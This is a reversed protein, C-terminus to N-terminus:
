DRRASLRRHNRSTRRAHFQTTGDHVSGVEDSASVIQEGLSFLTLSSVFGLLNGLQSPLPFRGQALAESRKRPSYFNLREISVALSIIILHSVKLFVATLLARPAANSDMSGMEFQSTTARASPQYYLACSNATVEIQVEPEELMVKPDEVQEEYDDVEVPRPEMEEGVAIMEEPSPPFLLQAFTKWCNVSTGFTVEEIGIITDNISADM